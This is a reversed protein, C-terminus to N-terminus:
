EEPELARAQRARAFPGTRTAHEGFSSTASEGKRKAGEKESPLVVSDGGGDRVM